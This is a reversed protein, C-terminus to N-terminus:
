PHGDTSVRLGTMCSTRKRAPPERWLVPCRQRRFCSSTEPSHFHSCNLAEESFCGCRHLVLGQRLLSRKTKWLIYTFFLNFKCCWAAWGFGLRFQWHHSSRGNSSTVFLLDGTTLRPCLTVQLWPLLRQFARLQSRMSVEAAWNLLFKPRLGHFSLLKCLFGCHVIKHSWTVTKNSGFAGHIGDRGVSPHNQLYINAFMGYM